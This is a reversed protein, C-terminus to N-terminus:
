VHFDHGGCGGLRRRVAARHARGARQACPVGACTKRESDHECKDRSPCPHPLSVLSLLLQQVAASHAHGARDARALSIALRCTSHQDAIAGTVAPHLLSSYAGPGSHLNVCQRVRAAASCHEGAVGAPAPKAAGSRMRLERADGTLSSILLLSSGTDTLPVGPARPPRHRTAGGQREGTHARLLHPQAPVGAGKATHICAGGGSSGACLPPGSCAHCKTLPEASNSLSPGALTTRCREGRTHLGRWRLQRCVLCSSHQTSRAITKHLLNSASYAPTAACSSRCTRGPCQQSRWRHLRCMCSLM